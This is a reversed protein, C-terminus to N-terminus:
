GGIMPINDIGMQKLKKATWKKRQTMTEQKQQEMGLQKRIKNEIRIYAANAPDCDGYDPNEAWELAELVLRAQHETLILKM